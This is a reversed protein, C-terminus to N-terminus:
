LVKYFYPKNTTITFFYSWVTLVNVSFGLFHKLQNRATFLSHILGCIFYVPITITYMILMFLFWGWGFEKRIRVMSSLILQKGKKDYLAYYSNNNGGFAETALAGVLHTIKYNGYVCLQGYKRLRSCFEAEESYLFFDEDFGNTADIASKKIMLFAGNIWDVIVERAPNSSHPKKVGMLTGAFKVMNGVYPLPLLSNLGGKMAYNGSIQFSGDEHQLQIGCAVYASQIFEQYCLEISHDFAICDPNLLLAADGKMISFAKNNARGFGSNYGMNVWTVPKELTKLLQRTIEDAANDIVIIEYPIHTTYKIVSDLCTKLVEKGYYNVIIISLM